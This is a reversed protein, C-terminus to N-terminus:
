VDKKLLKLKSEGHQRGEREPSIIEGQMEKQLDRSPEVQVPGAPPPKTIDSAKHPGTIPARTNRDGQAGSDSLVKRCVEM